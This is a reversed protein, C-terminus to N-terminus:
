AVLPHGVRRRAQRVEVLGRDDRPARVVVVEGGGLLKGGPPVLDFRRRLGPGLLVSAFMAFSVACASCACACGSKRCCWKSVGVCCNLADFNPIHTKMAVSIRM